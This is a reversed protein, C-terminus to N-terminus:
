GLPAMTIEASGLRLHERGRRVEEPLEVRLACLGRDGATFRIEHGDDLHLSTDSPLDLLRAWQEATAEPDPVEITAQQIRGPPGTGAGGTWDPGAWRWSAPPDPQDLSLITGGVDRPHLHSAAIDHEDVDFVTRIGLDAARQRAAPLDGVQLILMYGGEGRRDLHRGAATDEQVPSVVELFQDGLTLVANRLGFYAVGPDRYPPGLGLTETLEVEAPELERAVFAVQRIRM